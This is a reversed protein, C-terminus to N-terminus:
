KEGGTELLNRPDLAARYQQLHDSFSLQSGEHSMSKCLELYTDAANLACFSRARDVSETKFVALNSFLALQNQIEELQQDRIELNLQQTKQAVEVQTTQARDLWTKKLASWQKEREDEDNRSVIIKQELRNAEQNFQNQIREIESKQAQELKAVDLEMQKREKETASLALGALDKGDRKAMLKEFMKREFDRHKDKLESIKTQVNKQIQKIVEEQREELNRKEHTVANVVQDRVKISLAYETVHRYIADFPMSGFQNQAKVMEQELDKKAKLDSKQSRLSEIKSLDDAQSRRMQNISQFEPTAELSSQILKARLEAEEKLTRELSEERKKLQESYRRHALEEATKLDQQAYLVSSKVFENIWSQKKNQYDKIFDKVSQNSRVMRLLEPSKEVQLTIAATMKKLNHEETVIKAARAKVVETLSRMENDLKMTQDALGTALYLLKTTQMLFDDKLKKEAQAAEKEIQAKRAEFNQSVSEIECDILECIGALDGSVVRATLESSKELGGSPSTAMSAKVAGEISQLSAKEAALFQRIEEQIVERDKVSVLSDFRKPNNLFKRLDAIAAIYRNLSDTSQDELECDGSPCESLQDLAYAAMAEKASDRTISVTETLKQIQRRIAAPEDQASLTSLGLALPLRNTGVPALSALSLIAASFAFRISM